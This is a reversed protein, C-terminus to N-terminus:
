PEPEIRWEGIEDMLLELMRRPDHPQGLADDVEPPLRLSMALPIM